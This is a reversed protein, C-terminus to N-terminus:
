ERKRKEEGNAKGEKKLGGDGERGKEEKKLGRGRRKKM